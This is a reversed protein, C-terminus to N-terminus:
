DLVVDKLAESINENNTDNLREQTHRFYGNEGGFIDLLFDRSIVSPFNRKGIYDQFSSWRYGSLWNILDISTPSRYILELPNTHIYHPLHIFHPEENVHIAKFNGQFLGGVREYKKNFYNTYGTGLKQMFKSIGNERRQRILLHFHNPMLVFAIIELLLERSTKTKAIRVSEISETQRNLFYSVNHAPKEDNFEYLNHIFRLYDKDEMFIDRKEVGRNYIHYIQETIFIPKIMAM